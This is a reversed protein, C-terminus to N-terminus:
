PLREIRYHLKYAPNVISCSEGSPCDEDFVCLMTSTLSCQGPDGGASPVVYDMSGSIGAGFDPGAYTQDIKGPAHSQSGGFALHGRSTLCDLGRTFGLEALDTGLGKGLMNDVCEKSIGHAQVRVAGSGPLFQDYVLTQPVIFAGGASTPTTVSELGTLRQWEGNMAMQMAWNDIPGAGLCTDSSGCTLCTPPRCDTNTACPRQCSKNLNGLYLCSPREPNTCDADTSCSPGTASCTKPAVPVKPKLPNNIEISQLTVRVHTLPTPDRLWGAFITGAFGTPPVGHVNRTMRVTVEVHPVPDFTRKRTRVKAGVGGPASYTLVRVNARGGPPAPRPPLPVDFVFDQSNIPAVPQSLPFCNVSLLDTGHARHTLICRDGVGGGDASVFVDARTAPVPVPNLGRRVVGGRGERITALAQPPHMETEYNFHEGVCTEGSVCSGCTPSACDKDLICAQTTTTSCNGPTSDPHGCDFIWRGLGVIKDGEGPWAFAQLSGHEWEFGMHGAANGTGARDVDAPDLTIEFVADSTVHTAPFDGGTDGHFTDVTGHITVPTSDVTMGNVVPAWEPNVLDLLDFLGPNIGTPYCGGGNPAAGTDADPPTAGAPLAVLASLLIGIGIKKLPRQVM